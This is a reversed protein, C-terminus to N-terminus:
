KLDEMILFCIVGVERSSTTFNDFGKFNYFIRSKQTTSKIAHNSLKNIYKSVKKISDSSVNVKETKTFCPYTKKLHKDLNKKINTGILAHFHLRENKSGYDANLIIKYNPDFSELVNKIMRKHTKDSKNLYNDSFTFTVFYVYKYYSVMYIFRRKLRSVKMYRASLMKEFQENHEFPLYNKFHYYKDKNYQKLNDLLEFDICNNM